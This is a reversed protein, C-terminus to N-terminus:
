RDCEGLVSITCSEDRRNVAICGNGYWGRVIAEFIRCLEEDRKGEIQMEVKM